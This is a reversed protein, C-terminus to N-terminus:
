IDVEREQSGCRTSRLCVVFSKWSGGSVGFVHSGKERCMM